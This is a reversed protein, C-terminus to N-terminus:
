IAKTILKDIDVDPYAEKLRFYLVTLDSAMTQIDEERKRMGREQMQLAKERARIKDEKKLRDKLLKKEESRISELEKQATSLEEVTLVLEEKTRKFESTVGSLNNNMANMNNDFTEKLSAISKRLEEEKDELEKIRGLHLKIEQSNKNRASELKINLTNLEQRLKSEDTSLFVVRGRMDDRRATELLTKNKIDALIKEAKEIESHKDKLEQSLSRLEILVASRDARLLGLEDKLITTNKM